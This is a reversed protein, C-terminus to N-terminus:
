TRVATPLNIHVDLGFITPLFQVRSCQKFPSTWLLPSFGVVRPRSLEMDEARMASNLFKSQQELLSCM